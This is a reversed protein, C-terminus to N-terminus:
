LALTKLVKFNGRFGEYEESGEEVIGQKVVINGNEVFVGFEDGGGAWWCLYSNMQNELLPLNSTGCSGTTTAIVRAQGNVSLTIESTPVGFDDELVVTSGWEFDTDLTQINENMVGLTTNAPKSENNKVTVGYYAGAILLLVLVIYATNKMYFFPVM